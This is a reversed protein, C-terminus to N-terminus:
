RDPPDTGTAGSNICTRRLCCGLHALERTQESLEPLDFSSASAAIHQELRYRALRPVYANRIRDCAARSIWRYPATDHAACPISVLGDVPNESFLDPHQKGSQLRPVMLLLGSRRLTEGASRTGAKAKRNRNPFSTAEDAADLQTRSIGDLPLARRCCLLSLQGLSCGGGRQGFPLNPGVPLSDVLWTSVILTATLYAHFDSM